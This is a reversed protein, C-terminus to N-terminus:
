HVYCRRALGLLLSFIDWFNGRQRFTNITSFHQFKRGRRIFKIVHSDSGLKNFAQCRYRASAQDSQVKVISENTATQKPTMIIASEPVPMWQTEVPQCNRTDSDPCVMNQYEWKFTPLPNAKDLVCDVKSDEGKRSFIQDQKKM